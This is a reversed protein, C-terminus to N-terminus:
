KRLNAYLGNITPLAKGFKVTKYKQTAGDWQIEQVQMEKQVKLKTHIVELITGIDIDFDIYVDVEYTTDPAAHTLLYETALVKLNEKLALEYAVQSLVGQEIDQEFEIKKTYPTDYKTDGEVFIEDLMIDDKGIPMIKTCVNSWDETIKFSKINEGYRLAKTSHKDLSKVLHIYKEYTYLYGGTLEALTELAEALTVNTFEHTVTVIDPFDTALELICESDCANMLANIAEQVTVNILTLSQIVVNEADKYLSYCKAKLRTGTIIPNKIRFLGGHKGTVRIITDEKFFMANEPSYLCELDCYLTNKMDKTVLAVQPFLFGRVSDLSSNHVLVM